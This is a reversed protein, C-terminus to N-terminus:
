MQSIIKQQFKHCKMGIKFRIKMKGKAPRKEKKGGPEMSTSSKLSAMVRTRLLRTATHQERFSPNQLRKYIKWMGVLQLCLHKITAQSVTFFNGRFAISLLCTVNRQRQIFLWFLALQQWELHQIQALLTSLSLVMVMIELLMQLFHHERLVFSLSTSTMKHLLAEKEPLFVSVSM